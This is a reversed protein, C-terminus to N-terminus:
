KKVFFYFSPSDKWFIHIADDANERTIGQYPDTQVLRNLYKGMDKDDDLIVIQNNKESFSDLFAEIEKWREVGVVFGNRNMSLDPTVGVFQNLVGWETLIKFINPDRRWTSSVVVKAGTTWLLRNLEDVCSQKTEVGVRLVGDIDLFVLRM